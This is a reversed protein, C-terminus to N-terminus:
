LKCFKLVGTNHQHPKSLPKILYKEVLLLKVKLGHTKCVIEQRSWLNELDQPDRIFITQVCIKAGQCILLFHEKYLYFADSHAVVGTSQLVQSASSIHTNM